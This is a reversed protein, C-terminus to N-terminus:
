AGERQHERERGREDKAATEGAEEKRKSASM